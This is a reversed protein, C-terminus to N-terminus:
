RTSRKSRSPRLAESRRVTFEPQLMQRQRAHEAGDLVLVTPAVAVEAAAVGSSLPFGPRAKDASFRPDSLVVRADPFRTFLWPRSGDWITVRRVGEAERVQAVEAPPDFPCQRAMPYIGIDDVHRQATM